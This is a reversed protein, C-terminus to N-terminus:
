FLQPKIIKFQKQSELSNLMYDCVKIFLLFFSYYYCLFVIYLVEVSCYNYFSIHTLLMHPTAM